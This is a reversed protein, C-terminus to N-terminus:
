LLTGTLQWVRVITGSFAGKDTYSPQITCPYFLIGALVSYVHRSVELTDNCQTYWGNEVACGVCITVCYVRDFFSM